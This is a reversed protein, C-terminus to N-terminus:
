RSHKEANKMMEVVANGYPRVLLELHTSDLGISTLRATRTRWGYDPQSQFWPPLGQNDARINIVPANLFRPLLEWRALDVDSDDGRLWSEISLRHVESDRDKQSRIRARNQQRDRWSKVVMAPRRLYALLQKARNRRLSSPLEADLLVVQAVREGLAELRCAVEFAVVGGYCLGILRYPGRPQIRQIVRLYLAAQDEVHPRNGGTPDFETPVHVATFGWDDPLSDALEKFLQLGLIGVWHPGTGSRLPYVVPEDTPLNQRLLKAMQRVTTGLFFTQLPLEVGYIQEIRDRLGVARISSGGLSLFDQDLIVRDLGLVENWLGALAAEVETEADDSSSSDAPAQPNPLQLRDIKGASNLPFEAIPVWASPIMFPLLTTQAKARLEEALAPGSWYATLIPDSEDVAYAGVVVEKVGAVERLVAEIEELEIRFGRVKVQHDLRGLCELRGDSRFRGQDGTRYYRQGTAPDVVFRQSTLEPRELYGAALGLGGLCVEGREGWPVLAGTENRISVWTNDIPRGVTIRDIPLSLPEFTSWITTETPGYLNWVPSGLALLRRALSLSLAEGGCWIGLRGDGTWGSDLLMRWASPTAQVLDVHEKKLFEAFLRPDSTCEASVVVVTAGITLPLLLEALSIDFTRVTSAAMRQGPALGPRRGLSQLLNALARRPVVVGKPRGTSGSTFLVYAAASEDVSVWSCPELGELAALTDELVMLNTGVLKRAGEVGGSSCVVLDPRADAIVGNLRQVPSALDIPIYVAGIKLIGLLSVVEAIGRPLAQAIRSGPGLGREVLAQAMRGSLEDLQRYSITQGLGQVAVALPTRSVQDVFLSRLDPVRPESRGQGLQRLVIEDVPGVLPWQSVPDRRKAVVHSLCLGWARAISHGHEADDDRCDTRFFFPGSFPARASGWDLVLERPSATAPEPSRRSWASQAKKVLDEATDESHVDLRLVESATSRCILPVSTQATLRFMWAFSAALAEDFSVPAGLGPVTSVTTSAGDFPGLLERDIAITTPPLSRNM